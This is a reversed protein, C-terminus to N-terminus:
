DCPVFLRVFRINCNPSKKPASKTKKKIRGKFVIIKNSTELLRLLYLHIFYCKMQSNAFSLLYYPHEHCERPIMIAFAFHVFLCTFSRLLTCATFALVLPFSRADNM